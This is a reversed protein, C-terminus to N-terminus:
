STAPAATHDSPPSAESAAALVVEKAENEEGIEEGRQSVLLHLKRGLSKTAIIWAIIVVFLIVAICPVSAALSGFMLLLGQQLLSGGSKGLRSGVGDIVAKGRLKDYHDLPIFAMEKTTDFLSYKCAKSIANQIAGVLVVGTLITMGDVPVVAKSLLLMFFAIGTILMAVPTILATQTWGLKRIMVPILATLAIALLGHMSTVNGIYANFAAKEPYLVHVQDKWVVEIINIGLNYGVVLLAICLLYKSRALQVFADRLSLKIQKKTAFNATHLANFRPDNFVYCNLWRFIGMIILGNIIVISITIYVFSEGENPIFYLLTQPLQGGLVAALNGGVCLVAYFRKADGIRTVENAFGWFLVTLVISGWLESLVYFLAFTWHRYMSIAGQFGGPLVNELWKATSYPQLTDRYPYLWLLFIAYFALFGTILIYVVQEQSFRSSVKTFVATLLLAMPLLLWVKIYPIVAASSGEATIILSDKMNRVVTYNFCILFLILFLPIIMRGEHRHIPWFLSRLLGFESVAPATM